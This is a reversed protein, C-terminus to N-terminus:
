FIYLTSTFIFAGLIMFIITYSLIQHAKLGTIALLPLAWFPQLMNSLQDGYAMAMINKALDAKLQICSEIIIPAQISWQGGGSPIFINVVAASIFNAFPLTESNSISILSESFSEVLGSQSIIAMIGFYLPFQILIGSAGIIAKDISALFSEINRHALVSMGLLILNISNPTLFNLGLDSNILNIVLTTLILLGVIKSFWSKSDLKEMGIADKSKEQPLISIGSIDYNRITQKKSLLFAILPIFMILMLSTSLNMTSFITQDLSIFNPLHEFSGLAMSKIHGDEVVKLPASGSLGGHWVMLGVYASAGLLPYNFKIGRKSFSEAIQRALIASFILGLGWNFLSTLISILALSVVAQHSNQLLSSFGYSAKIFPRSIALSHGLVLMLMMQVSFALLNSNWLGSSWTKSIEILSLNQEAKFYALGVSIATLIIAITFPTPLLTKFVKEFSKEFNM